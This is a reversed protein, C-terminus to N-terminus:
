AGWFCFAGELFGGLQLHILKYRLEPKELYFVATLWWATSLSKIEHTLIARDSPIRM